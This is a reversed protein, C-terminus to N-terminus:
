IAELGIAAAAVVIAMVASRILLEVILPWRRVWASSRSTFYLNVAWGTLALGTGRLGSRLYNAVRGEHAQNFIYRFLCGLSLGIAALVITPVLYRRMEGGGSLYLRRRG